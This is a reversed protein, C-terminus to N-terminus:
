DISQLRGKMAWESEISTCFMFGFSFRKTCQEINRKFKAPIVYSGFSVIFVRAPVQPIKQSRGM